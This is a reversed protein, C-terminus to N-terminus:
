GWVVNKLIQKATRLEKNTWISKLFSLKGLEKIFGIPITVTIADFKFTIQSFISMKEM